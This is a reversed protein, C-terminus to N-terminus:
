VPGKRQSTVSTEALRPRRSGVLLRKCSSKSIAQSGRNRGMALAQAVAPEVLPTIGLQSPAVLWTREGASLALFPLRDAQTSDELAAVAQSATMGSVDVGNITINRYIRGAYCQQYVLWLIGLVLVAALLGYVVVRGLRQLM